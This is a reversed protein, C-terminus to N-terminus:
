ISGKSGDKGKTKYNYYRQYFRTSLRAIFNDVSDKEGTITDFLDSLDKDSTVVFGVTNTNLIANQLIYSKKTAEKWPALLNHTTLETNSFKTLLLYRCLLRKYNHLYRSNDTGSFIVDTNVYDLVACTKVIDYFPGTLISFNNELFLNIENMSLNMFEFLEYIAKLNSLLKKYNDESLKNARGQTMIILKPSAGKSELFEVYNYDM